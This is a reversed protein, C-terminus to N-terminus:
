ERLQEKPKEKQEQESTKLSSNFLEKVVENINLPEVKNKGTQDSNEAGYMLPLEALLIPTLQEITKLQMTVMQEGSIAGNMYMQCTYYSNALFMQVSQSRKNLVSNGSSSGILLGLAINGQTTADASGSANIINSLDLGVESPAEACFRQNFFNVLVVRREPTLALTGINERKSFLSPGLKDEIVPDNMKPTFISCGSLGVMVSLTLLTKNIM